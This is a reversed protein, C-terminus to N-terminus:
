CSAVVKLSGRQTTFCQFLNYREMYVEARLMITIIGYLPILYLPRM